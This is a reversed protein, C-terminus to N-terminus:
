LRKPKQKRLGNHSKIKFLFVKEIYIFNKKFFKFVKRFYYPNNLIIYFNKIYTLKNLILFNIMKMVIQKLTESSKKKKKTFIKCSGASLQYIVNCQNTKTLTLFYNNLTKKLHINYIEYENKKSQINKNKIYNNINNNLFKKKNNKIIKNEKM